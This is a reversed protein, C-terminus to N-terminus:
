IVWKGDKILAKGDAELTPKIIIGDVHFPIDCDGGYSKNNGLAVHVTGYVKEDELTNGIIKSKPNTGIGIEAINRSNMGLKLVESKLKQSNEVKIAYGNKITIKINDGYEAMKDIVLIGNSSCKDPSTDVEGAPLNGFSGPEHYIGNDMDIKYKGIKMTIDTGNSSTIHINTKGNIEDFMKKCNENVKNYDATLGGGIFSSVPINPMSAVRVGSKCADRRANTHSLSKSTVLLLVDSTKMFEAIEKSPEQGNTKLPEIEKIVTNLTIKKCIEFLTKPIDRLMQKDTIILVSEDKKINMCQKIAITAGAKLNM